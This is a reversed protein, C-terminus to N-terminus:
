KSFNLLVKLQLSGEKVVAEKVSVDGSTETIVENLEKALAQNAETIRSDNLDVGPINVAIIEVQLADDQAAVKVDVSGSVDAGEPTTGEGFVRMYGDHLEVSNIKKLLQNGSGIESYVPLNNIITDIQSQGLTVNVTASNKGLTVGGVTCALSTLALILVLGLLPYSPNKRYTKM